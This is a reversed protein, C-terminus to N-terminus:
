IEIRITMEMGWVVLFTKATGSTNSSQVEGRSGGRDLLLVVMMRRLFYRGKIKGRGAMHVCVVRM